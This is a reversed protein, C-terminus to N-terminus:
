TQKDPTTIQAPDVMGIFVATPNYSNSLARVFSAKVDEAEVGHGNVPPINFFNAGSRLKITWTLGDPSEGSLGLDPELQYQLYTAPDTGAKYRFLHSYAQQYAVQSAQPAGALPDLLGLNSSNYTSLMGGAQAA